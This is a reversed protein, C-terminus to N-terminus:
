LDKPALTASQFTKDFKQEKIEKCFMVSKSVIKNKGFCSMPLTLHEKFTREACQVNTANEVALTHDISATEIQLAQFCRVRQYILSQM